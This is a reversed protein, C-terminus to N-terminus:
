KGESMPPLPENKYVVNEVAKYFWDCKDSNDHYADLRQYDIVISTAIGLLMLVRHNMDIIHQIDIEKTM